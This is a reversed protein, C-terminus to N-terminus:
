IRNRKIFDRIIGRHDFGIKQPLRNPLFFMFDSAEKNLKIEGKRKSLLFVVSVAHYRPDRKPNSYVGLCKRISVSVGLEEKMERRIAKEVTEGYNVHGGPLVWCGRFPVIARKILLIRGKEFLLGDVTLIPSKLQRKVRQTDKIFM